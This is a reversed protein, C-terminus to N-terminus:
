IHIPKRSNEPYFRLLNLESCKTIIDVGKFINVIDAAEFYM